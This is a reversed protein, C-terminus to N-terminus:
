SWAVGLRMGTLLLLSLKEWRKLRTTSPFLWGLWNGYRLPHPRISFSLTLELAFRKKGQGTIILAKVADDVKATDLLSALRQLLEKDMGNLAEPRNFALRAIGNEKHYLVTENESM